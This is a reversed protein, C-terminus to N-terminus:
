RAGDGLADSVAKPNRAIVTLYALVHGEPETRRQEWQQLTRVSFQYRAAFASQSLKQKRRIAAVDLSTAKNNTKQPM